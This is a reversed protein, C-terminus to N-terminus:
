VQVVVDGSVAELLERESFISCLMPNVVSSKLINLL